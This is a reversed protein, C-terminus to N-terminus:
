EERENALRVAEEEKIRMVRSIRDIEEAQCLLDDRVGALEDVLQQYKHVFVDAARSNWAYWLLTCDDDSPKIIRNDIDQASAKLRQSVSDSLNFDYRIDKM